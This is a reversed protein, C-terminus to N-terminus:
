PTGNQESRAKERSDATYDDSIRLSALILDLSTSKELNFKPSFCPNFERRQVIGIM